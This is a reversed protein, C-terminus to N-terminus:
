RSFTSVLKGTFTVRVAEAKVVQGFRPSVENRVVECTQIADGEIRLRVVAGERHSLDFERAEESGEASGKRKSIKVM